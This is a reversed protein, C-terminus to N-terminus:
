MQADFGRGTGLRQRRCMQNLQPHPEQVHPFPHVGCTPSASVRQRRRWTQAQPAPNRCKLPRQPVLLCTDDTKSALTGLPPFCGPELSQLPQQDM